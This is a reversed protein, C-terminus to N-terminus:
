LLHKKLKKINRLGKKRVVPQLRAAQPRTAGPVTTHHKQEM